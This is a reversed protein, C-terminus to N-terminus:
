DHRPGEHSKLEKDLYRNAFRCFRFVGYGLIFGIGGAAERPINPAFALVLPVIFNALLAAATLYRIVENPDLRREHVAHLFGGGVGALIFQPHIYSLIADMM